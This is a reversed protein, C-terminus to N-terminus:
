TSHITSFYILITFCPKKVTNENLAKLNKKDKSRHMICPLLSFYQKEGLVKGTCDEFFTKFKKM